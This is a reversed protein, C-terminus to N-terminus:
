KGKFVSFARVSKHVSSLPPVTSYEDVIIGTGIVSNAGVHAFDCIVSPGQTSASSNFYAEECVSVGSSIRAGYGIISSCVIDSFNLHARDFVISGIVECNDGINAFSGIISAKDHAGHCVRAGGCIIAPADIKVGSSLTASRHVWINEAVEDFESFPLAPGKKYMYSILASLVDAPETHEVFLPQAITKTIDLSSTRFQNKTHKKM